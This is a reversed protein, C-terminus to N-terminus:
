RKRECIYRAMPGLYNVPGGIMDASEQATGLLAELKKRAQAVGALAPYTLKGQAVDKGATKGLSESSGEIDLLDDVIQFALGIAVGYRALAEIKDREAGVLLGGLQASATILRGTKNAHIFELLELLEKPDGDLSTKEAQLDAVQGGIMGKSDIASAVLAVAELQRAPDVGPAPESLWSFAETLLADGALIAIAEGFVVHSTPRGRRLDDNDLAPLDDHILSYTHILELAAFQKMPLPRGGDCAEAAAIALIPRIRKGGATVSYRMAEHIISPPTSAPPLYAGLAADVERKRRDLYEEISTHQTPTQNM